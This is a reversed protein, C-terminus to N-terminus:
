RTRVVRASAVVGRRFLAHIDTRKHAFLGVLNAYNRDASDTGAGFHHKWQPFLRDIDQRWAMEATRQFEDAAQRAAQGKSPSKMNLYWYNASSLVAADPIPGESVSSYIPVNLSNPSTSDFSGIAQVFDRGIADMYPFQYAISGTRLGRAFHGTERLAREIRSVAFAEGLLTVSRPRNTCVITIKEEPDHEAFFASTETEAPGAALMSGLRGNLKSVVQSSLLGRHYADRIADRHSVAGAAHAAVIEGSSRGIVASRAAPCCCRRSSRLARTGRSVARAVHALLQGGLGRVLALQRGRM